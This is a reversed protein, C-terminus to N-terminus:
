HPRSSFRMRVPVEPEAEADGVLVHGHLHRVTAGTYRCDGCRMALGYHSLGFQDRVQGLATFLDAQAAPSLDLVDTVHERPIVLLHLRTGPYPYDNPTVNWHETAVVVPFGHAAIGDPCMLCTGAAELATMRARQEGTRVNGFWYLGGETGDPVARDANGPESV